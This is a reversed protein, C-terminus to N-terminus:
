TALLATICATEVIDEPTAGRSLDCCPRDLGQVIPGLAVAGGLRQTLKYAINGADLDPFVLVNADGAVASAPAKRRGVSAVLAADAQLEGDAPVEPLRERFLRLAERVRDVAPGRASGRTSYSLFAVRPEDGVIRRRAGVAAVAIDALQPPTPDPVVAGDTYTLVESGRGRFARVVMYFSSSVTGMGPAPGVCWLAARLVEGTAHAAGAVSADVEGRRVMLAGRVLPTAAWRRAEDDTMGKHARREMLEAAFGDLRHDAPDEVRVADPDAVGAHRLGERTRETSGLVVPTLLEEERITAVAALTRPDDGEPFVVSRGAARARERISARFRRGQDTTAPSGIGEGGSM